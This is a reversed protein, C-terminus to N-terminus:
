LCVPALGNDAGTVDLEALAPEAVDGADAVREVWVALRAGHAAVSGGVSTPSATYEAQAGRPAAKM